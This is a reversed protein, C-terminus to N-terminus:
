ASFFDCFTYMGPGNLQAINRQFLVTKGGGNKKFLYNKLKSTTFQREQILYKGM